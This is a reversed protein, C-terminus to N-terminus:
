LLSKILEFIQQGFAALGMLLPIIITEKKKVMIALWDVLMTWFTKEKVQNLTNETEGQRGLLKFIDARFQLHENANDRNMEELQYRIKKLEKVNLREEVRQEIEQELKKLDHESM